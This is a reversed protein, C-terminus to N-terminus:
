QSQSYLRILDRKVDPPSIYAEDVMKQIIKKRAAEVHEDRIRNRIKAQAEEFPMVRQEVREAVWAVVIGRPSEATPYPMPESLQKIPGKLAFEVLTKQYSSDAAVWGLDGGEEARLERGFRRALTGFDTGKALEERITEAVERVRVKGSAPDDKSVAFDKFPLFIAYLRAQNKQTFEDAIHLRYYRRIESATPETWYDPRFQPAKSALQGSQAAVYTERSINKGLAEVYEEESKYGAERIGEAIEAAGKKEKQQEVQELIYRKPVVLGVREVADQEIAGFALELLKRRYYIDYDAAPMGRAAPGIQRDVQSKTIVTRNVKAAVADVYETAPRSAPAPAPLREQARLGSVAALVFLAPIGVRHIM